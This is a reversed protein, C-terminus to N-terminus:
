ENAVGWDEMWNGTYMNMAATHMDESFENRDEVTGCLGRWMAYELADEAKVYKGEEPGIGKYGLLVRSKETYDSNYDDRCLKQTQEPDGGPLCKKNGGSIKGARVSIEERRGSLIEIALQWISIEDIERNETNM